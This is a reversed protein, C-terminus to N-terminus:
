NVETFDDFYNDDDSNNKEKKSARFADGSLLFNIGSGMKAFLSILVFFGIVKFIFGFIPTDEINIISEHFWMAFPNAAYQPNFYFLVFALMSIGIVIMETRANFHKKMMPMGNGMMAFIQNQNQNKQFKGVFYMLLIFGSLVIKNLLIITPNYDDLCYLLTVNVLFFYKVGKLVYVEGISRSRGASLLSIGIEILGWIFGYIAFLVGLSFLFNFLEM